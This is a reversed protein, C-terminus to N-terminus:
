LETIIAGPQHKLVFDLAQMLMYDNEEHQDRKNPIKTDFYSTHTDEYEYKNYGLRIKTEVSYDDMYVVSHYPMYTSTLGDSYAYSAVEYWKNHISEDTWDVEWDDEGNSLAIACTDMPDIIEEMFHDNKEVSRLWGYHINYLIDGSLMQHGAYGGIFFSLDDVWNSLTVGWHPSDVSVYTDVGLRSEEQVFMTRAIIGGMSVGVVALHYDPEAIQDLLQIFEALNDANDKLDRDGEYYDFYVFDWGDPGMIDLLPQYKLYIDEAIPTKNVTDFGTALLFVKDLAGNLEYVIRYGPHNHVEEQEFTGRYPSYAAYSINCLSIFLLTIIIHHSISLM